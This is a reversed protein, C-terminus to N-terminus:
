ANKVEGKERLIEISNTLIQPIPLGMLGGNEIISILENCMFAICVGDRIYTTGLQLDVRNAVMVIILTYGKRILGKWGARSELTGDDTKPSNHFVGAVILGSIYDVLMFLCLTQIATDWGGLLYTLFSGGAGIVALAKLKM